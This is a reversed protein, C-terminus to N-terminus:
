VCLKCSKQFLDKFPFMIIEKKKKVTHRNSFFTLHINSYNIWLVSLLSLVLLQQWNYRIEKRSFELLLFNWSSFNKNLDQLLLLSKYVLTALHKWTIAHFALIILKKTDKGVSPQFSYQFQLNSINFISDNKLKVAVYSYHM